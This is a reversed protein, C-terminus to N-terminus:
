KIIQRLNTRLSLVQKLWVEMRASIEHGDAYVRKYGAEAIEIRLQPTTLLLKLKELLEKTDKFFVAEKDPLFLSALDDTYQSLMVTKMAPIQFNRRTYTDCNLTSLFCLAVKAGCIAYRYNDGVAPEIPYLNRLPSNKNLIYLATNWGGGFLKLDFGNNCIAELMEIRGDNEFHGAFVVECKFKEPIKEASEPFDVQPIFYSRLLNVKNAGYLQYEAINSQRYSFHIDFLPISALFKRWLGFKATKSFPNDNAYQCFIANPLIKKLEKVTNESILQVNYFWVIEPNIEKAFDVLRKNVKAVTPGFMFRYQLRHFISKYIPENRGPTWYFFDELWGFRAVKCGHFVLAEACAEQYWHWMYDGVLLVKPKDPPSIKNFNKLVASM